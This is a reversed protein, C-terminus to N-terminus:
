PKPVFGSSVTTKGDSANVAKQATLLQTQQQQEAQLENLDLLAKEVKLDQDQGKSDTIKIKPELRQQHQFRTGLGAQRRNINSDSQPPKGTGPKITQSSLLTKIM